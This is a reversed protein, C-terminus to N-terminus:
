ESMLIATDTMGVFCWLTDYHPKRNELIKFFFYELQKM